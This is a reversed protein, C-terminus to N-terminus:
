RAIELIADALASLEMAAVSRPSAETVGMGQAFAQAFGRRDGLVMPLLPLGAKTFATEVRTRLASKAPTRNLLIAVPRREATALKLTGETAWLDPMSPQVPILVLSAARVAGAADSDIQPPTDVILIDAAGALRDLEGRLRWGSVDSFGLAPLGAGRLKHWRSLSRQPDIDLLTVRHNPAWAAALNAALMTKGAGGKQQAITLILAMLRSWALLSPLHEKKLFLVL